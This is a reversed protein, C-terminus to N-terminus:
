RGIAKEPAGSISGVDDCGGRVPDLLVCPLAGGRPVQDPDFARIRNQQSLPPSPFRELLALGIAKAFPLGRHEVHDHQHQTDAEKDCGESVDGGAVAHLSLVMINSRTSPPMAVM